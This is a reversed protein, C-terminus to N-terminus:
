KYLRKQTNKNRINTQICAHSNTMLLLIKQKNRLDREIASSSNVPFVFLTSSSLFIFVSELVSKDSHMNKAMLMWMMGFTTILGKGTLRQNWTSHNKGIKLEQLAFSSPLVTKMMYLVTFHSLFRTKNRHHTKM